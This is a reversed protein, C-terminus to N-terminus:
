LLADIATTLEEKSTVGVWTDRIQGDDFLIFTPVYEIDYQESLNPANDVDVTCVKARGKYENAIEQIVPHMRTSASCWSASFDVLVPIESQLVIENFTADTVGIVNRGPEWHRVFVEVDQFDVLGDGWPMPGIDVSQEDQGWHEMLAMLDDIDTFGDETFDVIPLISAEFLDYGGYFYGCYGAFYLTTGDSSIAATGDADDWNVAYGCNTPTDWPGDAKKRSAMWIDMGGCGGPRNSTMFLMRGDASVSPEGDSYPGNVPTGVNVPPTWPESVSARTAVWIDWGGQGGPRDSDFFLSLGDPMIHCADESYETNITPGLNVPANWADAKTPRTAVWLDLDGHGGPRKSCFYLSLEDASIKPDSDEALSNVREGLNTPTGWASEKTLRTAVWLDHSGFGGPRNSGFYLSLGDSSISVGLDDYWSNVPSGVYVVSGFTFDARVFSTACMAGIACALILFHRTANM